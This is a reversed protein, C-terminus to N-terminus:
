NQTSLFDEAVNTHLHNKKQAQPIVNPLIGDWLLTKFYSGLHCALHNLPKTLDKQILSELGLPRKGFGPKQNPNLLAFAIGYFLVTFCVVTHLFCDRNM